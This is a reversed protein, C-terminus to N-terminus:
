LQMRRAWPRSRAAGLSVGTEPIINNRTILWTTGVWSRSMDTDKSALDATIQRNPRKGQFQSGSGGSSFNDFHGCLRWGVKNGCKEVRGLGWYGGGTFGRCLFAARARRLWGGLVGCARGRM